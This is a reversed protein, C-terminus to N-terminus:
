LLSTRVFAYGPSQSYGAPNLKVNNLVISGFNASIDLVAPATMTCNSITLGDLANPLSQSSEGILFGGAVLTGSCNSVSVADINFGPPGQWPITYLRMM